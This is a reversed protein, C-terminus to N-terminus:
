SAPLAKSTSCVSTVRNRSSSNLRSSRHCKSSSLSLPKLLSPKPRLSPHCQCLCPSRNNSKLNNSANISTAVMETTIEMLMAMTTTFVASGRSILTELGEQDQLVRGGRCRSSSSNLSSSRVTRHSSPSFSSCRLCSSGKNQDSIMVSSRFSKWTRRSGKASRTALLSSRTSESLCTHKGRSERRLSASSSLAAVSPDRQHRSEQGNHTKSVRTAYSASALCAKVQTTM